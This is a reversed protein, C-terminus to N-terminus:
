LHLSAFGLPTWQHAPMVTLRSFPSKIWKDPNSFFRRVHFVTSQTCHSLPCIKPPKPLFHHRSTIFWFVGFICSELPNPRQRKVSSFGVPLLTSFMPSSHSLPSSLPISVYLDAAGYFGDQYAMVSLSLFLSLFVSLPTPPPSRSSPACLLPPPSNFCFLPPTIRWRTATAPFFCPLTIISPSLFSHRASQSLSFFSFPSIIVCVTCCALCFVM